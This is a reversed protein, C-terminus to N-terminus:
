KGARGVIRPCEVYLWVWENLDELRAIIRICREFLTNKILGIGVRELKRWGQMSYGNVSSWEIETFSRGEVDGWHIKIKLTEELYRKLHDWEDPTLDSKRDVGDDRYFKLLMERDGIREPAIFM